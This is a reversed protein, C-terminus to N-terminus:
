KGKTPKTTVTVVPTPPTVNQRKEEKLQILGESIMANLKMENRYLMVEGAALLVFALIIFSVIMSTHKHLYRSLEDNM